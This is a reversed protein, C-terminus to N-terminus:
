DKIEVKSTYVVLKGLPTSKKEIKAIFPVNTEKDKLIWVYIPNDPSIDFILDDYNQNLDDAYFSCKVAEGQYPSYENNSINETGEDNFIMDYRKKGDFVHLKANCFGMTTYQKIIKALVTQLDTTHINDKPQIIDVKKIKDNKKNIIHTAKGTNDYFIEKKRTNSRSKSYSKYSNTNFDNKSVTGTTKYEAKFPYLTNFIGNTEINTKVIYSNPTINYSFSANSANFPGVFATTHHITQHANATNYLFSTFLAISLIKKM